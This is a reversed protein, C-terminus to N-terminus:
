RRAGAVVKFVFVASAVAGAKDIVQVTVKSTGTRSPKGTLKGTKKNLKVGAPLKGQTVAYSVPAIGGRAKVFAKVLQGVYLTVTKKALALKAAVNLTVDITDSFGLADSVSLKLAAPGAVGPIGSIVGTSPDLNLGSPLAGGGALSWTYPARGGTAKVTTTFPIGVEAALAAPKTIKLAPATKLTFTETDVRLGDAVKVVFTYDGATTPTGSLVGNSGLTIGPPLNGSQVSWSQSGGGSATLQFSYPANLPIPKLSNQQISLGLFIKFTFEREASAPRCWDAEPPNQDSLEVWVLWEGPQTPIGSVQGSTSMSLGPPLAGNLIRFQYPLAPGCGGAGDFKHSYPQGTTGLPVFFSADTFRIAWASPVVVLAVLLAFIFIRTRRM